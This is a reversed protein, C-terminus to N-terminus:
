QKVIRYERTGTELDLRIMYVGKSLSEINITVKNDSSLRGSRHLKGDFSVLQYSGTLADLSEITFAEVAPNPYLQIENEFEVISLCSEVAIEVEDAAQCGNSSTVTVTYVGASNVQTLPGQAGNSWAVTGGTGSANLTAPLESECLLQDEGASVSPSEFVTVTVEDSTECGNVDEVTIVYVGALSVEISQTTEGTSWSYTNVPASTTTVLEIPLEESCANIQDGAQVTIEPYVTLEVSSSSSCGFENFGEVSYIGSQTAEIEPSASVGNWVFTTSPQDSTASLTIPLDSPCVSLDSGASITPSVNVTVTIDDSSSCNNGDTGTVTFINSGAALQFPVGDVVGGTWSYTLGGSATLTIFDNDCATVDNGADIIPLANVTLVIQDSSSCGTVLDTGTVTYVSTYTQNVTNVSLSSGVAGNNWSYTTAGVANLAIQSGGCATIDSGASVNPVPNLTVSYDVSEDSCGLLSNTAVVSYTGDTNVSLSTGTASQIIQDNRYWQYTTSTAGPIVLQTSQGPCITNDTSAIVAGSAQACTQMQYISLTSSIENALIVLDNGNPSDSAPITIIGEAGLDPGSLSTSRNNHYGVYIPNSPDNINFIMVGGIRELSVFAYTNGNFQQVTVGEPEPGKDDSRNKLSPAGISNSANFISGFQPHNATIQEIMDKSDFVPLGTTANWITFSRGGMIHLQDYDGDGDTDGSYKLASLRGLFKNNRLINQDPFATQDLNNFTTSSIRNADIVTGFERSDGENSTILYSQGGISVETIADPMYTGKVPLDGTILVAGSQDSADLANGSGAAYSSYGLPSLSVIANTTLDITLLANNEQLTVFAKSNDNSVAIYEPELDQAVSASTSFIRIGQARLATEQGNFSSLGITTVNSNTLSAYGASLDIISVSGEPDVSYDSSPEGENATLLKTYDKNFTIMDPMAGVDVQSIFNGSADLIVVKGNNQAPISEVAMAVYGNRATVSNINGYSALPVSSLLVPSSPNSFNVIDLKQGISNAIYLKDTTPDFAVIEASNTTAAGNSFSSLLSLNLENTATPAQFDNDKIFIIQYNNTLSVNANTNSNVKLIIREAKEADVDDLITLPFNFVGNQNAPITFSNTWAFDSGETANSYTSFSFTLNVPAQNANAVTIPINISGINESYQSFNNAAAISVDPATEFIRVLDIRSTGTTGYTSTSRASLYTGTTPDFDSVIRFGANANNSLGSIAAFSFSRFYWTDGTGIAQPVFTFTTADVWVVTGGTSVGTKDLTYQLVWTNAATNSLRQWFEIGIRNYGSTSVDFQVGATRPNTGQAPWTTLNLGSNDSINPDALNGTAFTSTTGGLLTLAGSGTVPTLIGTGVAADSVSSNFDWFGVNSQSFLPLSAFLALGYSIIKKM